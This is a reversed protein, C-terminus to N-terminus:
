LAFTPRQGRPDMTQHWRCRPTLTSATVEPETSGRIRRAGRGTAPQQDRTRAPRTLCETLSRNGPSRKAPAGPCPPRNELPLAAYRLQIETPLGRCLPFTACGRAMSIPAQTPNKQLLYPTVLENRHERSFPTDHSQQPISILIACLPRYRVTIGAISEGSADRSHESAGEGVDAQTEHDCTERPM